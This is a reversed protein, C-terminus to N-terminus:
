SDPLKVQKKNKFSIDFSFVCLAVAFRITTVLFFLIFCLFHPWSWKLARSVPLETLFFLLSMVILLVTSLVIFLNIDGENYNIKKLM